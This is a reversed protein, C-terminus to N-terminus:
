INGEKKKAWYVKTSEAIKKKQEESLKRGTMVKSLNIRKEESLKRGKQAASANARREPSHKRGKLSASRKARTEESQPGTNGGGAQKAMNLCGETGIYRDIWNQEYKLLVDKHCEILVTATYNGHKDFCRQVRRNVHKGRNLRSLHDRWRAKINVASGIYFSGNSFRLEYIGSM